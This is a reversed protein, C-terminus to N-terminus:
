PAQAALFAPEVLLIEAKLLFVFGQAAADKADAVVVVVQFFEGALIEIHDPGAFHHVSKLARERAARRAM